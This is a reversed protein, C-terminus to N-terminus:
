CENKMLVSNLCVFALCMVKEDLIAVVGCWGPLIGVLQEKVQKNGMSPQHDLNKKWSTNARNGGGKGKGRGLVM